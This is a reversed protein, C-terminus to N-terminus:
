ECERANVENVTNPALDHKLDATLLAEVVALRGMVGASLKSLQLHMCLSQFKITWVGDDGVEHVVGAPRPASRMGGQQERVCGRSM